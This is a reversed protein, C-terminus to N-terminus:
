AHTGGSFSLKTRLAQYFTCRDSAILALTKPYRDINIKDGSELPETLQGDITLIVPNRQGHEVLVVIKEDSPVVIPRNALTFPCIPNIIVLDMEPDIIPGGAAVSYATSGTPTAVILGDARFPGLKIRDGCATLAEVELRVLKAIGASSVVVDNLCCGKYVLSGKREVSVDLMLRRSIIAKGNEWKDYVEEWQSPLVAAIFGLSGLNVPLLPTGLPGMLRAAHLVTGDGGLSISLDMATPNNNTKENNSYIDLTYRNKELVTRIEQALEIAAPKKKNIFLLAKKSM